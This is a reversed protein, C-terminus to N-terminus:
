SRTEQPNLMYQHQQTIRSVKERWRVLGGAILTAELLESCFWRKPDAWNRRLAIGVIATWDYPRGIQARLFALAAAEDPVPVDVLETASYSARLAALAVRHVGGGFFTSHIVSMDDEVVAVHSWQSWCALRILWSAPSRNRAFIAKM